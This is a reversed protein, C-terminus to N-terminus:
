GFSGRLIVLVYVRLDYLVYGCTGVASDLMLTQTRDAKLQYKVSVGMIGRECLKEWDLVFFGIHSLPFSFSLPSRGRESRM